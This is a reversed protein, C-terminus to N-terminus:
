ELSFTDHYVLLRPEKWAVMALRVLVNLRDWLASFDLRCDRRSGKAKNKETIQLLNTGSKTTREHGSMVPVCLLNGTEYVCENQETRWTYVHLM